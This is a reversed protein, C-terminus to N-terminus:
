KCRPDTRKQQLLRCLDFSQRNKEWFQTSDISERCVRIKPSRWLRPNWEPALIFKGSQPTMKMRWSIKVGTMRVDTLQLLSKIRYIGTTGYMRWREKKSTGDPARSKSCLVQPTMKMVHIWWWWWWWRSFFFLKDDHNTNACHFVQQRERAKAHLGNNHWFCCWFSRWLRGGKSVTTPIKGFPEVFARWQNKWKRTKTPETTAEKRTTM